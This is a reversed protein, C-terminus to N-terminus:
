YEVDRTDPSTGVADRKGQLCAKTDVRVVRDGSDVIFQLVHYSGGVRLAVPDINWEIYKM